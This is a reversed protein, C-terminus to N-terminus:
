HCRTEYETCLTVLPLVTDHVSESLSVFCLHFIFTCGCHQGCQPQLGTHLSCKDLAGVKRHSVQSNITYYMSYCIHFAGASCVSFRM